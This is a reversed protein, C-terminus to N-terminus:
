LKVSNILTELLEDLQKKQEDNSINCNNCITWTERGIEIIKSFNARIEKNTTKLKM